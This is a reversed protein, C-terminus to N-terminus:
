VNGYLMHHPRRAELGVPGIHEVTGIKTSCLRLAAVMGQLVSSARFALFFQGTSPNFGRRGRGGCTGICVWVRIQM